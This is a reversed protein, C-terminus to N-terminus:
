AFLWRRFLRTLHPMVVYVMLTVMLGTSVLTDLARHAPLGLARLVPFVILPFVFVLPYIASWTVLVQKWRVPVQARAGEPVFWFDLGSRIHFQDEAELIPRVQDILEKREASGIWGELAARDRFRLVVVFTRTVGAVPRILHWDLHGPWRHVVPRIADIWREYDAEHGPVVLHTIVATAGSQIPDPQAARENPSVM